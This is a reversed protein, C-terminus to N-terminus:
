SLDGMIYCGIRFWGVSLPKKKEEALQWSGVRKEKEGALQWSGPLFDIVGVRYLYLLPSTNSIANILKAMNWTM